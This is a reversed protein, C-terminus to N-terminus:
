KGWEILSYVAQRGSESDHCFFKKFILFRLIFPSSYRDSSDDALVVSHIDWLFMEEENKFWFKLIFM